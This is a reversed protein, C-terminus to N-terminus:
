KCANLRIIRAVKRMVFIPLAGQVGFEPRSLLLPHSFVATRAYLFNLSDSSQCCYQQTKHVVLPIVLVTCFNSAVYRFHGFVKGEIGAVKGARKKNHFNNNDQSSNLRHHHQQQQQRLIFDIGAYKIRKGVCACLFLRIHIRSHFV